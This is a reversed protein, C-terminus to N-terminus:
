TYKRLSLREDKEDVLLESGEYKKPEDDLFTENLSDGDM